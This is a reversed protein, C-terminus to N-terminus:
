EDELDLIEFKSKNILPKKPKKPEKIIIDKVKIHELPEIPAVFGPEGGIGVNYNGMVLNEPLHGTIVLERREIGGNSWNNIKDYRGDFIIGSISTGGVNAPAIPREIPFIHNPNGMIQNDPLPDFCILEELKEQYHSNSIWKSEDVEELETNIVGDSRSCISGIAFSIFFLVFPILLLIKGIIPVVSLIPFICFFIIIPIMIFINILCVWSMTDALSQNYYYGLDDYTKKIDFLNM